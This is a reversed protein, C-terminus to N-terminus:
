CILIDWTEGDKKFEGEYRTSKLSIRDVSNVDITTVTFYTVQDGNTPNEKQKKLVLFVVTLAAAAVILLSLRVISARKM